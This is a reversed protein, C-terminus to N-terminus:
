RLRNHKILSFVPHMGDLRDHGRGQAVEENRVAQEILQLTNYAIHSQTKGWFAPDQYLAMQKLRSLLPCNMNNTEKAFAVLRARM